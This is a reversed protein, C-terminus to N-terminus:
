SAESIASEVSSIGGGVMLKNGVKLLPRRVLKPEQLMLGIMEDDSLEKDSLGMTKLSPSRRAFINETGVMSALDRIETESLTDKFFDRDTVELGHQL